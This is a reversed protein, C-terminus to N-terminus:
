AQNHLRFTKKLAKSSFSKPTTGDGAKAVSLLLGPLEISKHKEVEEKSSISSPHLRKQLTMFSNQLYIINIRGSARGEYLSGRNIPPSV